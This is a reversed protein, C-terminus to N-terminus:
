DRFCAGGETKRSPGPVAFDEPEPDRYRVPAPVPRTFIEEVQRRSPLTLQQSLGGVESQVDVIRSTLRLRIVSVRGDPEPRTYRHNYYDLSNSTVRKWGHRRATRHLDVAQDTM